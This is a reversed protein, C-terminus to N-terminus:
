SSSKRKDKKKSKDKDKDGSLSATPSDPVSNRSSGEARLSSDDGSTRERKLGPIISAISSSLGQRKTQLSIRRALRQFNAPAQAASAGEVETVTTDHSTPFTMITSDKTPIDPIDDSMAMPQDEPDPEAPGKADVEQLTAGLDGETTVVETAEAQSDM